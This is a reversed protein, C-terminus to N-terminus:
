AGDTRLADFIQRPTQGSGFRELYAEALRRADRSTGLLALALREFALGDDIPLSAGVRICRKAHGVAQPPRLAMRRALKLAEPMLQDADVARTVLGIREAEDPSLVAGDLVLEVARTKGVAAALRQTGGAGPVIGGLVEVLGIVHDGRAMLRYDCALTLECGGGMTTGNIAAIVVKNMRELRSFVRHIQSLRFLTRLPLIPTSKEFSRRLAPLHELFRQSVEVGRVVGELALQLARPLDLAPMAQSADGLESVSFHTIFTGPKTGTIIIAKVEADLEWALTLEDLEAVMKSTMFEHPPNSLEIIGVGGDIRSKVQQM